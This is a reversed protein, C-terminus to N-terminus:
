PIKTFGSVWTMVDDNPKNKPRSTFKRTKRMEYTLRQSTEGGIRDLGNVTYRPTNDRGCCAFLFYGM